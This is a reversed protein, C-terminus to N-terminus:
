AAYTRVGRGEFVEGRAARARVRMNEVRLDSSIWAMATAAAVLWAALPLHVLWTLTSRLNPWEALQEFGASPAGLAPVFSYAIPEVAGEVVPRLLETLPMAVLLGTQTFGYIQSLGILAAWLLCILTGAVFFGALVGNFLVVSRDRYGM